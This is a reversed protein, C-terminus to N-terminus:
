SILIEEENITAIELVNVLSYLVYALRGSESM